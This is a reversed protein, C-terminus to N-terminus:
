MHPKKFIGPPANWYKHFVRSFHSVDKYGCAEAAEYVKFGSELLLKAREMKKQLVYQTFPQGVESKFLRSLYFPHVSVREAMDFLTVKQDIENDLILLVQKIISSISSPNDRNSYHIIHQAFQQLLRAGEDKSRVSQVQYLHQLEKQFVEAAAWGRLECYRVMMMFGNVLHLRWEDGDTTSAMRHRWWHELAASIRQSKGSELALQINNDLDTSLLLDDNTIHQTKAKETGRKASSIDQSQQQKPLTIKIHIPEGAATSENVQLQVIKARRDFTWGSPRNVKSTASREALKTQNLDISSPKTGLHIIVRYSRHKPISEYSGERPHIQIDIRDTEARCSIKTSSFRGNMYDLTEGDDEYLLTGSHGWPYMELIIENMFTQGIYDMQPWKSIIAGGRIFLPGEGVERPTYTLYQPGVHREGTWYNIWLGEPLYVRDTFVAVLLDAGLMYQQSLEVCAPDKPFMLPMARTIPMGTQFAVHATSYIYPLLQYRLQAYKQFTHRLPKELLCPNRFFSGSNILSWSQLFGSHIGEHMDINIHPTAHVCGSMGLSLVPQIASARSNYKGYEIAAFQQIGTYGTVAHVMPRKGQQEIYGHHVQKALLLPYLNSLEENSMGNAWSKQTSDSLRSRTNFRFSSAGEEAFKKVYTYWSTTQKSNITNNSLSQEEFLTLDYNVCYLLLGLKFGHRGLTDIFTFARDHHETPVSFREPHFRWHLSHEDEQDSWGRGLGLTDCPIEEQRFMLVDSLVERDNTIVDRIYTLGYSHIPLLRPRGAINTYNYLLEAYDDGVFLFFDLPGRLGNIQLRDNHTHGVDFTHEETTNMLLAWGRNSMLYPVPVSSDPSNKIIMRAKVGRKQLRNVDADGLGYLHENKTLEFKMQSLGSEDKSFPMETSSFVRQGATKFLSLQENNLNVKVMAHETQITVEHNDQQINYPAPRRPHHVMGYRILYSERWIPSNSVQIHFTGLDLPFIHLWAGSALQFPMLRETNM